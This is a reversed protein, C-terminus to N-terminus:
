HSAFPQVGPIRCSHGSWMCMQGCDCEHGPPSEWIFCFPNSTSFKSNLGQLIGIQAHSSSIKVGLLSRKFFVFIRCANLKLSIFAYDDFAKTQFSFKSSFKVETESRTIRHKKASVQVLGQHCLINAREGSCGQALRRADGLMGMQKM